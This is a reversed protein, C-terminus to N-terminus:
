NLRKFGLKSTGNKLFKNIRLRGKEFDNLQDFIKELKLKYNKFIEKNHKTCIYVINTALYKEKLMEQTIFTKYKLFNESKIYFNPIADMGQVVMPIKYTNSIEKWFKKIQLGVNKINKWPKEKKMIELTKLAAVPGIGESWFTSSIFSKRGMKMIKEKGIVASIAYGNGLAKGFTCLDPFVKHKLHIGGLNERFGSSCEDFILVIKKKDCIERVKELFFDQPKESREAEMIVTGVNHKRTVKLFNDIDNYKFTVTSNKLEKPVGETSVGEMLYNNLNKKNKLNCSQYWDHWGHYGCIAIKNKKTFARSLRIAIANAEGGTRAFCVKESWSHIKNLHEALLVEEFSNLTSMSGNKTKKIVEKDIESRAYGLLNTGIGMMSFDTYKKGNLDWIYCGKAKKYYTPWSNPLYLDPRKSIFMNGGVIVKKARIWNYNKRM